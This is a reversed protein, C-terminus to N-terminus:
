RLLRTLNEGAVVTVSDINAAIDKYVELEKLRMLTPNEALMKATNAQSRTAATEERRMITNAEARKQAEIVRNLIVKMEGPLVVDKLDVKLVQAGWAEAEVAVEEAMIRAAENRGELLGEVTRGAIFRRVAMQAETYLARHLDDVAETAAVPDDVRYTVIVNVRLTVKDATMVEQGGIQLERERMDLAFCTVDRDQTSLMYRGRHLVHALVGNEYVLVREFPHAQVMEFRERPALAWFRPPLPSLLENADVLEATVDARVQWLLYKGPPLVARPRGDIAVCAVTGQPVVLPSAEKRPVVAAIEPTMPMYGEDLDVWEIDVEAFLDFVRHRGPGLMRVVRGDKRVIGRQNDRITFKM